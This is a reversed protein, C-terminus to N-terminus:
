VAGSKSKMFGDIHVTVAKTQGTEKSRNASQPFAPGTSLALALFLLTFRLTM